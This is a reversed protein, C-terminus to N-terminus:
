GSYVVDHCEIFMDNCLFDIMLVVIADQYWWIADKLALNELNVPKKFWPDLAYGIIIKNLLDNDFGPSSRRDGIKEMTPEGLVICARVLRQIINSANRTLLALRITRQDLPNRSLPDVVNSRGLRYEWRYVFTQELYELWQAQRRSLNQQSKLYILPNYDTVIM